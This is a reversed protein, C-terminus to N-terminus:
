NRRTRRAPAYKSAPHVSVLARNGFDLTIAALNWNLAAFRAILRLLLETFLQGPTVFSDPGDFTPNSRNARLSTSDRSSM